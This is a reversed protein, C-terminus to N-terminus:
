SVTYQNEKFFFIYKQKFSLLLSLPDEMYQKVDEIAQFALGFWFKMQVEWTPLLSGLGLSM